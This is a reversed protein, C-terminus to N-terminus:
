NQILYEHFRRTSFQRNNDHICGEAQHFTELFTLGDGAGLIFATTSLIGAETCTPAIVNVSCCGNRVPYGTRPDIIHGYTDGGIVMNRRYDGSTTVARNNLSVGAWCRGTDSPDELGIRWPSGGPATGNVRLDRGFNVLINHIGSDLAIQMVRDVAYEKGIGGFDLGMGEDPLFVQGKRHQLKSWGCLAVARAVEHPDPLTPTPNHYDWLRLLPLVAPDFAGRTAWHYWDCLAFLSEAEPDLDVWDHGAARNIRDILSGPIFRSYRQEFGTVWEQVRTKFAEAAAHSATQFQVQCTTGMAIFDARTYDSTTM